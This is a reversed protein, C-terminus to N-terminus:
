LVSSMMMVLVNVCYLLGHQGLEGSEVQLPTGGDLKCGLVCLVTLMGCGNPRMAIM